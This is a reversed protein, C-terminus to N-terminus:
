SDRAYEEVEVEEAEVSQPFNVLYGSKIDLIKLYNKLQTRHEDRLSRVAKIEVVTPYGADVILDSRVNGVCQGMYTVPIIRESEYNIGHSRLEIMIANHYISESFGPGLANWVNKFITPLSM